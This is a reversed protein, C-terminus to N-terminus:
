MGPCVENLAEAAVDPNVLMSGPLGPGQGAIVRASASALPAWRLADAYWVLVQEIFEDPQVGGQFAARRIADWLQAPMRVTIRASYPRLPTEATPM